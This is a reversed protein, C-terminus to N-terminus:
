SSRRYFPAGQRQFDALLAQGDDLVIFDMEDDNLAPQVWAYLERALVGRTAGDMAKEVAVGAVLCARDEFTGHVVYAERVEPRALLGQRLRASVARPISDAPRLKPASDTIREAVVTVDDPAINQGEAIARVWTAAVIGSPVTGPNVHVGLGMPALLECFESFPMVVYTRDAPQSQQAAEYDTFAIVTPRDVRPDTGTVFSVDQGDDTEPGAIQDETPLAFTASRLSDYLKQRATGDGRDMAAMAEIVAPNLPRPQPTTDVPEPLRPPAGSCRRALQSAGDPGEDSSGDLSEDVDTM